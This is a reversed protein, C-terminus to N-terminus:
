SAADAGMAPAKRALGDFLDLLRERWAHVPDDTELLEIKKICRAWMFMGFLCYDAYTPAEGCLFPQESLVARAPALGARFDTVHKETETGFEELKRNFRTERSTRFYARDNEHVLTFIDYTLIMRLPLVQTSDAWSNCFRAFSRGQASGFLSPRDPYRDELYTAIRWSDSLVTEDDVLVPVFGQGSFAINAKESFRWPLREAALGKHALAMRTKWCHPSFRLEADAGALEYLTLSM